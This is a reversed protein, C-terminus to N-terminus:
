QHMAEVNYGDPDTVFAACYNPSYPPRLGPAGRDIGGVALVASYFADVAKRAPAVFALHFGTGPATLHQPRAFLTLTDEGGPEGFGVAHEKTYVRIYGLPALAMEYFITARGLDDV